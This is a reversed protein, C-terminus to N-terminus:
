WNSSANSLGARYRAVLGASPRRGVPDAATQTGCRRGSVIRRVRMGALLYHVARSAVMSSQREGPPRPARPGACEVEGLPESTTEAACSQM